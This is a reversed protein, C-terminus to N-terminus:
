GPVAGGRYRGAVSTHTPRTPRAWDDLALDSPTVEAPDPNAVVRGHRLVTIRHAASLAETLKHTILIVAHGAAALTRMAQVVTESEQPTLVATPEDLILVRARRQLLKLIEVSRQEGVSLQWVQSDPDVALQYREALQQVHATLVKRRLWIGRGAAALVINEVVTLSPVLTFHQFVM